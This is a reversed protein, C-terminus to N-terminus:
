SQHFTLGTLKFLVVELYIHLIRRVNLSPKITSSGEFKSWNQRGKVDLLIIIHAKIFM